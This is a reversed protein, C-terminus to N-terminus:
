VYGAREMRMHGTFDGSEFLAKRCADCYMYKHESRPKKCLYCPQDKVTKNKTVVSGNARYCERCYGTINRNHVRKGCDKCFKM